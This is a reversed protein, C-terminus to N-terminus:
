SGQWALEKALLTINFLLPTFVTYNEGWPDPSPTSILFCWTKKPTKPRPRTGSVSGISESNNGGKRAEVEGQTAEKKKSIKQKEITSRLYMM